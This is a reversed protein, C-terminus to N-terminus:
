VNYENDFHASPVEEERFTFRATLDKLLQAQSSLQESAAASEEATASNTQVVSSIQEIGETVQAITDAESIMSDAVQKIFDVTEGTFDSASLLMSGVDKSLDSGRQIDQTSREIIEKTQKAAQDSKSALSRVEDAVVAFGKGSSGARAAEVAANLALINTQFAIDEITGIIQAIEKHGKLIADMAGQLDEMKEYSMRVQEGTQDSRDKAHRAADANNKAGTDIESVTASLEQVSSAQETAGQALAQAGSSVQDAGLSVQDASLNIQQLTRSLTRNINRLAVLISQFDGCYIGEDATKVNFNGNAMEGLLHEEDGILSRLTGVISNMAKSLTGIEDRSQHFVPVETTLDGEQLQLLRTAYANIPKGIGNAIRIAILVSIVLVVVMCVAIAFTSQYTASLFDSPPATIAISWGDTNDVPAYASYKTVGNITYVQYGTNGARMDEHIAALAKLSPDNEAEQEINQVSVTDLTTDAITVGTSDIMYAGSNKSVHISTMIDNLFTEKPVFYVVGAIKGGENGDQWVPAAVMISLQGTIKSITPVSVSVEGQIASQFYARDAYNNGDMLSDGNTDLLNGREMGYYDAWASVIEGKQSDTVEEDTLAPNMGLAAIADRYAELEFSVRQAAVSATVTLNDRLMSRASTYNFAIGVGGCILAAAGVLALFSVLLKQKITKM